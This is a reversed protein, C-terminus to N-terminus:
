FALSARRPLGSDLHRVYASSLVGCPGRANTGLHFTPDGGDVEVTM